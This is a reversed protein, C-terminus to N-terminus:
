EFKLDGKQWQQLTIQATFAVPKGKLMSLEKLVYESEKPMISLLFSAAWLRVYPNEHKLLIAFEDLRNNNKLFLYVSKIVVYQKNGLKGNGLEECNGKKVCADIFEKLEKNM